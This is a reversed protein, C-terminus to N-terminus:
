WWCIVTPYIQHGDGLEKPVSVVVLRLMGVPRVDRRGEAFVSAIPSFHTPSSCGIVAPPNVYMQTPVYSPRLTM